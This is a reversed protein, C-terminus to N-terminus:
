RVVFDISKERFDKPSMGMQKKFVRSFYAPDNFDLMYSIETITYDTHTLYKQAEAMIHEEALQSASKGAVAQCIRNLHVPTIGLEQAYESVTKLASLSKKISKQFAQFYKLQRNDPKLVGETYQQTFRFVEVLLISLYAQLAIKKEFINPM